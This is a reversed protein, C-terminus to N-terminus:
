TTFQDTDARFTSRFTFTYSDATAFGALGTLTVSSDATGAVATGITGGSGVTLAKSVGADHWTVRKLDSAAALKAPLGVKMAVDGLPYGLYASGIATGGLGAITFTATGIRSFVKTGQATGGGAATAFGTSETIVNGFQDKGRLDVTGGMGGAVGLLSFTVTRPADLFPQGVVITGLGDGTMTATGLRATGIDPNIITYHQDQDFEDPSVKTSQIQLGFDTNKLSM